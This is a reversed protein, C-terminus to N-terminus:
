GNAPITSVTTPLTSLAYGPISLGTDYPKAYEETLESCTTRPKGTTIADVLLFGLVTTQRRFYSGDM